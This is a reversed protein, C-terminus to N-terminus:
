AAISRSVATASTLWWRASNRDRVASAGISMSRLSIVAASSAFSLQIRRLGAMSILDGSWTREMRTAPSTTARLFGTGSGPGPASGNPTFTGTTTATAGAPVLM